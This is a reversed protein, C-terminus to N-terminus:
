EWFLCQTSVSFSKQQKSRWNKMSECDSQPQSIFWLVLKSQWLEVSAKFDLVGGSSPLDIAHTDHLHAHKFREFINYFVICYSQQDITRASTGSTPRDPSITISDENTIKADKIRTICNRLQQDISSWYISICREPHSRLCLSIPCMPRLWALGMEVLWDSFSFSIYVIFPSLGVSRWCVIAHRRHMSSRCLDFGGALQPFWHYLLWLEVLPQHAPGPCM